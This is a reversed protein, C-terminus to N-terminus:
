PSARDAVVVLRMEPTLGPTRVNEFGAEELWDRLEPVGFWRVVFHTKRTRGARAVMRTTLTRSNEVDLQIEDAMLDGDREIFHQPQFNLLLRTINLTELVFKGGPKLADHFQALVAKNQDDSFYGFSTFWNVLADFRDRWPIDRMDGQVYEVDVGRASADARAHELFFESSDLGTVRFGRQALTNAIRGHGCPCDLIEAGPPLDLLEVIREVDKETQEPTLIKEYFYLYDENFVGEFDFENV